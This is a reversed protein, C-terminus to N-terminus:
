HNVRAKQSMLLRRAREINREGASDNGILFGRAEPTPKLDTIRGGYRERIIEAIRLFESHGEWTAPQIWLLQIGHWISYSVEPDPHWTLELTLFNPGSKLNPLESSHKLKDEEIREQREPRSLIAAKTADNLINWNALM